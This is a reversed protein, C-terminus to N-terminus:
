EAAVSIPTFGSDSLNVLHAMVSHIDDALSQFEATPHLTAEDMYLARNIEIQVAHLGKLPRGYHETIFGGAYPTNRAVNYGLDSFRRIIERSIEGNCSTGYRDGIIIDTQKTTKSNAGSSPMSHCDVLVAYGFLQMAGAMLQRLTEHYPRYIIEIM